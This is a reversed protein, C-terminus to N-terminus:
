QTRLTGIYAKITVDGKPIFPTADKFEPCKERTEIPTQMSQPKVRLETSDLSRGPCRLQKLNYALQKTWKKSMMQM